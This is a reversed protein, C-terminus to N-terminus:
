YPFDFMEVADVEEGSQAETEVETLFDEILFSLSGITWNNKEGPVNLSYLWREVLRLIQIAEAQQRPTMTM